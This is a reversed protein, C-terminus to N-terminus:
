VMEAFKNELDVKIPICLYILQNPLLGESNRGMLQRRRLRSGSLERAWRGFEKGSRARRLISVRATNNAKAGNESTNAVTPGSLLVM